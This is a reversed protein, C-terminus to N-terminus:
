EHTRFQSNKNINNHKRIVIKKATPLNLPQQLTEGLVLDIDKQKLEFRSKASKARQVLKEIQDLQHDKASSLIRKELLHDSLKERQTQVFHSAKLISHVVFNRMQYIVPAQIIENLYDQQEVENLSLLSKIGKFIKFRFDFNKDENKEIGSYPTYITKQGSIYVTKSDFSNIGSVCAVTDTIQEYIRSSLYFAGHEQEEKIFDVIGVRMKKPLVWLVKQLQQVAKLAERKQLPSLEKKLISLRDLIESYM